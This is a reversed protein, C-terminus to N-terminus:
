GEVPQDRPPLIIQIFIFILIGELIYGIWGDDSVRTRLYILPMAATLLFCHLAYQYYWPLKEAPWVRTVKPARGKPTLKFYRQGDGRDGM